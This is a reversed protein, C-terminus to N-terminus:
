AGCRTQYTSASAALAANTIGRGGACPTPDPARRQNQSWRFGAVGIVHLLDASRWM